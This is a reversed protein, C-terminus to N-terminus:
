LINTNISSLMKELLKCVASTVSLPRYNNVNDVDGKNKYVPTFIATKWINPLPGASLSINFLKALHKHIALAVYKFIRPSVHDPSSSKSINMIQVQDLVESDSIRLTDMRQLPPFLIGYILNIMM